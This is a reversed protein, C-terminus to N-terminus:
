GPKEAAVQLKNVVKKVGSVKHAVKEAKNRIKESAVTGTLTVVGGRVQIAINHGKVDPDNYLRQRVRDYLTDDDAAGAAVAWGTGALPVLLLFLATVRRM